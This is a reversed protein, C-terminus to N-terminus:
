TPTAEKNRAAVRDAYRGLLNRTVKFGGVLGLLGGVVAGLAMPGDPHVRMFVSSAVGALGGSAGGLLAGACTGAGVIAHFVLGKEIGVREVFRNCLMSAAAAFWFLNVGIEITDPVKTTVNMDM